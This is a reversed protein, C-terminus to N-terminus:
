QAQINRMRRQVREDGTEVPPAPEAPRRSFVAKFGGPGCAASALLPAILLADLPMAKGFSFELVRPLVFIVNLYLAAHIWFRKRRAGKPLDAYRVGPRSVTLWHLIWLGLCVKALFLLILAMNMYRPRVLMTMLLWGAYPAGMYLGIFPLWLGPGEADPPRRVEGPESRKGPAHLMGLFILVPMALPLLYLSSGAQLLQLVPMLVLGIYLVLYLVWRMGRRARSVFAFRGQPRFLVLHLSMVAFLLALAAQVGAQVDLRDAWRALLVCPLYYGALALLYRKLFM